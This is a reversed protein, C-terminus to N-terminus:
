SSSSSMMSQQVSSVLRHTNRIFVIDIQIMFSKIIHTEVIDFPVFGISDMFEIHKSFSPVGENYEGFFPLEMLIFDVNKLIKSAGKLVPIESGQTDIKMFIRSTSQLDLDLLVNDLAFSQQKYPVTNAYYHTKERFMSDGTGDISYWDVEMNKENLVVYHVHVNDKEKDLDILGNYRTPEFLHYNSSPFIDMCERTWSGVNAGIDIIVDFDCDYDFKLKRLTNQSTM